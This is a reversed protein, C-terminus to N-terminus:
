GDLHEGLYAIPDESIVMARLHSEWAHVRPDIYVMSGEYTAIIGEGWLAKAFEQNFILMTAEACDGFFVRHAAKGIGHHMGLNFPYVMEWGGDIAKKIAKELIEQNSM